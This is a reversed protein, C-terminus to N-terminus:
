RPPGSALLAFDKTSLGRGVTIQKPRNGNNLADGEEVRRLSLPDLGLLVPDVSGRPPARPPPAAREKTARVVKAGPAAKEARHSTPNALNATMARNAGPGTVGPDGPEGQVVGNSLKLHSLSLKAGEVKFIQSKGGGDLTVSQGATPAIAAEETGNVILPTTIAITTPQPPSAASCNLEISEGASIATQLTAESCSTLVAGGAASGISPSAALAAATIATGVQLWRPLKM